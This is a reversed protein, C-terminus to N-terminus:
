MPESDRKVFVGQELVMHKSLVSFTDHKDLCKVQPLGLM